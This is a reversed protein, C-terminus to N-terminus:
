KYSVVCFLCVEDMVTTTILANQIGKNDCIEKVLRECMRKACFADVAAESSLKYEANAEMCAKRIDQDCNLFHNAQLKSLSWPDEKEIDRDANLATLHEIDAPATHLM